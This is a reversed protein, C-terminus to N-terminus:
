GGVCAEIVVVGSCGDVVFDVEKLWEVGLLIEEVNSATEVLGEVGLRIDPLEIVAYNGKLEIERGDATKAVSRVPELQNLGLEEFVDEPVLVFGTYGTDLVALIEGKENPYRGGTLPSRIIVPVLISEGLPLRLGTM